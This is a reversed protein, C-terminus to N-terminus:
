RSTSCTWKGLPSGAWIKTSLLGYSWGERKMHGRARKLKLYFLAWLEQGFDIGAQDSRKLSKGEETRGDGNGKARKTAMEMARAAMVMARNNGDYNSKSSKGNGEKNGAVENGNGDQMKNGNGNGINGNSAWWGRQRLWGCENRYGDSKDGNGVGNGNSQKTLSTPSPLLQQLPQASPLPTPTLIDKM